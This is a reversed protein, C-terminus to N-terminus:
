LILRGGLYQGGREGFSMGRQKWDFHQKCKASSSGYQWQPREVVAVVHAM